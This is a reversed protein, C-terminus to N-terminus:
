PYLRPYVGGPYVGPYVSCGAGTVNSWQYDVINTELVEEIRSNM